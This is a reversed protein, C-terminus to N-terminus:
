TPTSRRTEGGLFPSGDYSRQCAWVESVSDLKFDREFYMDSRNLENSPILQTGASPAIYRKGLISIGLRAISSASFLPFFASTIYVKSKSPSDLSGAQSAAPSRLLLVLRPSTSMFSPALAEYIGGSDASDSSGPKSLFFSGVMDSDGCKTWSDLVIHALDLLEVFVKHGFPRLRHPLPLAAFPLSHLPDPLPSPQAKFTEDNTRDEAHM